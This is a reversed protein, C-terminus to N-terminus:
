SPSSQGTATACSQRSRSFRTEIRNGVFQLFLDNLEDTALNEFCDWCLYLTRPGTQGYQRGRARQSRLWGQNPCGSRQCPRAQPPTTMILPKMPDCRRKRANEIRANAFRWGDIEGRNFRYDSGIRFFSVQGAKILRYLTARHVGLYACVELATMVPSSTPSPDSSDDAAMQDSQLLSLWNTIIRSTALRIQTV